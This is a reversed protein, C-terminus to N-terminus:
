LRQSWGLSAFLETALRKAHPGNPLGLVASGRMKGIQRVLRKAHSHKAHELRVRSRDSLRRAIWEDVAFSLAAHRAEDEAIRLMTSRVLPDTARKAQAYALLAGWAEGVCGERANEIAIAELSRRRPKGLSTRAKKSGALREMSRAHRAEDRAARRCARLLRQPAGARSLEDELIRFADVSAAELAAMRALMTGGRVRLGAPRRGSGCAGRYTCELVETAAGGEALYVRCGVVGGPQANCLTVCEGVSHDGVAPVPEAAADAGNEKPLIPTAIVQDPCPGCGGGTQLTGLAIGIAIQVRALHDKM